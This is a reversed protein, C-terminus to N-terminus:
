DIRLPHAMLATALHSKLHLPTASVPLTAVPWLYWQVLDLVLSKKGSLVFKHQNKGTKKISASETKFLCIHLEAGIKSYNSDNKLMKPVPPYGKAGRPM